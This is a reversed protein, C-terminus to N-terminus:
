QRAVLMVSGDAAKITEIPFSSSLATLFKEADDVQFRGGVRLDALRTDGVIIPQDRYRNFEAVAQALTDGHFEIVGDQWATRERLVQSDLVTPAVAGSRIVAGVGAAIHPQIGDHLAGGTKVVAVTGDTVTLEVFNERIRVNFATGVALMRAAGADVMFPRNRDHAVEFLAEGKVLRVHRWKERMAVEITSATNLHVHSGDTLMVIRREGIRTRYLDVNRAYRWVATVACAAVAAAVSGQMIHRRSLWPKSVQELSAEHQDLAPPTARIRGSMEWAAEMRAFAVAHHPNAEIWAFISKREAECIEGQLRVVHEAALAEIAERNLPSAPPESM